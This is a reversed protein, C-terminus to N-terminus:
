DDAVVWTGGSAYRFSVLRIELDPIVSQLVKLRHAAPEYSLFRLSLTPDSTWLPSRDDILVHQHDMLFGLPSALCHYVRVRCSPTSAM